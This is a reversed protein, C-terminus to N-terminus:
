RRAASSAPAPTSASCRNRDGPVAVSRRCDRGCDNGGLAPVRWWRGNWRGHLRRGCGDASCLRGAPQAPGLATGAAVRRGAPRPDLPRGSPRQRRWAVASGAPAHRVSRRSFEDSGAAGGAAACRNATKGVRRNPEACQAPEFGSDARDARPFLARRATRYDGPPDSCRSGSGQTPERHKEVAGAPDHAPRERPTGHSCEVAPFLPARRRLAAASRVRGEPLVSGSRSPDGRRGLHPSRCPM